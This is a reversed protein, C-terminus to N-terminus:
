CQHLAYGITPGLEIYHQIGITDWNPETWLPARENVISYFGPTRERKLGTYLQKFLPATCDTVRLQM